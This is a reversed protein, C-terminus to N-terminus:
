GGFSKNTGLLAPRMVDSVYNAAPIGAEGQGKLDRIVKDAVVAIEHDNILNKAKLLGFLNTLISGTGVIAAEISHTTNM